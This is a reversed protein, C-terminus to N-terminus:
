KETNYSFDLSSTVFSNQALRKKSIEISKEDNEILIFDRGLNQAAIGVTASGAVNDLVLDGPNTYTKIFYEILALPKQASHMFGNSKNIQKDSKFKLISRPYRDTDGGGSIDKKVKGYVETKNCVEAKKTYSNVPKHGTTKQPNYTPLNNYFVLINEHSKMPMKKANFYGSAQTKEWIWEYRLWPLNSCGLVKDFPTQAFLLIAGNPKIIRKYQEWLQIPDIQKDWAAKTTGFPLDALILDISKEKIFPMVKLCDGEIFSDPNISQTELDSLTLFQM